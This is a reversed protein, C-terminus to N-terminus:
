SHVHLDFQNSNQSLRHILIAYSAGDRADQTDQVLKYASLFEQNLPIQAACDV